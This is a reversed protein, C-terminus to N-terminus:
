SASFAASFGLYSAGVSASVRNELSSQYDKADMIEKTQFSMSCSGGCDQISTGDPQLYRNDPTVKHSKYVAKFIPQRFGPDVNAGETPLPNGFMLNYGRFLYGINPMTPPEDTGEDDRDTDVESVYVLNDLAPVCWNPSPVALILFVAVFIKMAIPNFRKNPTLEWCSKKRRKGSSSNQITGM